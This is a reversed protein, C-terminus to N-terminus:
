VSGTDPENGQDADAEAELDDAGEIVLEFGDNMIATLLTMLSEVCDNRETYGQLSGAMIIGNDAVFHYDFDGDERKFVVVKMINVVSGM